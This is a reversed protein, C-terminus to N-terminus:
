AKIAAIVAAAFAIPGFVILGVWAPGRDPSLYSLATAVVAPLVVLVATWRKGAGLLFGAGVLAVATAGYLFLRGNRVDQARVEGSGALPQVDWLGRYILLLAIWVLMVNLL